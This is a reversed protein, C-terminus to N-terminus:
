HKEYAGPWMASTNRANGKQDYALPNKDEELGQLWNYFELGINSLGLLSYDCGTKLADELEALTAKQQTEAPGNWTYHDTNWTLGYASMPQGTVDTEAPEFNTTFSTTSTSYTNYVNYGKSVFSRNGNVMIATDDNDTQTGNYFVMSNMIFAPTGSENRLPTNAVGSINSAVTITSNVIVWCGGGNISTGKTNSYNDKFTSNNMLMHGNSLAIAGGWDGSTTNDTFSCDNMFMIAHTDVDSIKSSLARIAGGRNNASCNKFTCGDLKLIPGAQICIAGGMGSTTPTKCADFVCDTANIEVGTYYASIAGGNSSTTQCNTFTCGELNVATNKYVYGVGGQNDASCDRAVCDKMTFLTNGSHSEACFVAGSNKAYANTITCGEVKFNAGKNAYFTGGHNGNSRCGDFTSRKVTVPAGEGSAIAGGYTKTAICRTFTCGEVELSSNGSGVTIAGGVHHGTCDEFLCDKVKITGNNNIYIAAGYGVYSTSSGSTTEKNSSMLDKFTCNTFTLENSYNDSNTVFAGQRYKTDDQGGACTFTIGDFTLYAWNDVCFIGTDEDQDAKDNNNADGTLKTVYRAADRQTLDVGTSAASYGGKFDINCPEGMNDYQLKFRTVGSKAAAVFNYKGEKFHITSGNFVQCKEASHKGYDHNMFENFAAQDMANDWSSGTKDGAGEPSVFWDKLDVIMYPMAKLTKRSISKSATSAIEKIVNGDADIAQAKLSAYEGVPLPIYVLAEALKEAFKVTVTSESATETAVANVQGDTIDYAGNIKMGAATLVLKSGAPVGKLEFSLLGGLHKFSMKNDSTVTAYLLANTQGAVYDYEAPLNVDSGSGAAAAPFVAAANAVPSANGTFEGKSSGGDGTLTFTEYGSATQVAIADGKTWTFAVKSTEKNVEAGVKTDDSEVTATLVVSGVPASGDEIEKNCGVAALLAVACMLYIKKMIRQMKINGSTRRM